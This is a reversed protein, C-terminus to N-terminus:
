KGGKMLNSLKEARDISDIGDLMDLRHHERWWASDLMEVSASQYDENKIFALTKKFKMFRPVGMNYAMEVIVNQVNWPLIYIDIDMKHLEKKLEKYISDIDNDLMLLMENSRLSNTQLNRGWGITINLNDWHKMIIGLDESPLKSKVLPDIYPSMSMGENNMISLRLKRIDM